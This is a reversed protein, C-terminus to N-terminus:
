VRRSRPPCSEGLPINIPRKALIYECAPKSSLNTRNAGVINFSVILHTGDLPRQRAVLQPNHCLSLRLSWAGFNCTNLRQAPRQGFIADTKLLLYPAIAIPGRLSVTSRGM